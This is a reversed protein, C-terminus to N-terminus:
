LVGGKIQITKAEDTYVKIKTGAKIKATKGKKLFGLPGFLVVLAVTTGTASDGSKGQAARLRIKQGDVANTSEVRIGLKGGKGMMGSKEATTITGKAQTGQAIVVRNNVTVDEDVKFSLADGETANNGSIEETTVVTLETGDPIIIDGSQTLSKSRLLAANSVTLPYASSLAMLLASSILRAFFRSRTITSM